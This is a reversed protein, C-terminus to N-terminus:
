GVVFAPFLFGYQPLRILESEVGKLRIQSEASDIPKAYALIGDEDVIILLGPRLELKGPSPTWALNAKIYQRANM